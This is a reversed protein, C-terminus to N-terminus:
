VESRVGSHARQAPSNLTNPPSFFRTLFALLLQHSLLPPLVKNDQCIGGSLLPAPNYHM